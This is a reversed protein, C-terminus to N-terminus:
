IRIGTKLDFLSALAPDFALGLRDGSRQRAKGQVLVGIQQGDLDCWLISEAGLMETLEVAVHLRAEPSDHPVTRLGEPRVGLEVETGNAPASAFPYGALDIAGFAGKILTRGAEVAIRGKLFNMRPMGIFGAVYRNAPRDYIDDPIALQQIVGDKMVAIRDALTLAEIQDHTVYIMTKGTSNHLRKIEIRLEARLKADLNSLPEDFLFVEAERALARGIAVRQRQGGSLQAPRRALLETIQLFDAVKRVRAAREPKRMGAVRLAFGLNQEVTMKPYLAYSQFVMALGRKDPELDTVDRDAIVISGGAPELLGAITNLLTSKGCGSSGLLVLFEGSAITLDLDRLVAHDGFRVLLKEITIASM